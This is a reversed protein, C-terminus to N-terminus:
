RLTGGNAGGCKHPLIAMAELECLLDPRCVGAEVLSNPLGTLGWDDWIQLFLGLDRRSKLYTIVQVVDAFSAGHPALLEKVNLLMREIQRGTDNVHVTAGREDVSATGSIFLVIKDPLVLKMGRSFSAGYEAAENLTPTHMVEISTGEPNLLAYLDIGCLSGPPRLGSRIGTSAPLRELAQQRFFENRSANFQAYDRDIDDLYCWTRLVTSFDTGHRSLLGAAKGFMMDAQQRFPLQTQGNSACGNVNTLYLHRYGGIEVLKATAGQDTTPFSHVRVNEHGISAVAHLQLEFAQEARCPPQEVYSSAPLRDGAIGAQGYAQCRAERFVALDAELDRFFARELIVDRMQAGHQNLLRPLCGYFKQAQQQPSGSDCVPACRVFVERTLSTTIAVVEGHCLGNGQTCYECQRTPTPLTAM